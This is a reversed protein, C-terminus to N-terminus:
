WLKKYCRDCFYLRGDDESKIQEVTLVDGFHIEDNEADTICKACVLEEGHPELGVKYGIIEVESLHSM